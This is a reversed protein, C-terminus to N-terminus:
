DRIVKGSIAERIKTPRAQNGLEGRMILEIENNPFYNSVQEATKAPSQEQPNASTSVIPRGYAAVLEAVLPHASKRLAISGDHNCIWFPAAHSAPFVWTNPGPWTKFIEFLQAQAIPMVWNVVSDWEDFLCIFGKHHSRGKLNILQAVARHQTADVSLGYVAETPMAIIKGAALAKCAQELQNM